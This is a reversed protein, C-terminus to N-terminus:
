TPRPHPPSRGDSGAPAEEEWPNKGETPVLRGELEM